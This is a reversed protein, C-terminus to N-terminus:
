LKNLHKPNLITNAHRSLFTKISQHDCGECCDSIHFYDNPIHKFELRRGGPNCLNVTLGGAQKILKLSKRYSM